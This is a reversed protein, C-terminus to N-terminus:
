TRGGSIMVGDQNPLFKPIRCGSIDQIISWEM